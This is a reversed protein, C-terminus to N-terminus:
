LVDRDIFNERKEPHYLLELTPMPEAPKPLNVDKQVLFPNQKGAMNEQAESVLNQFAAVDSDEQDDEDVVEVDSAVHEFSDSHSDEEEDDLVDLNSITPEILGGEDNVDVSEIVQELQTPDVTPEEAVFIEVQEQPQKEERSQEDQALDDSQIADMELEEITATLQKSRAPSDEEQEEYHYLPTKVTDEPAKSVVEEKPMHINFRRAQTPEPSSEEPENSVFPLQEDEVEITDAIPEVVAPTMLKPEVIEEKQGRLRNLLWHFGLITVECLREVISLWSIGTLLTFGAGWLFLLVLTTGLVNLTPLALSTLVDGVVGGSSFYWIDDFNIDALGCSTLLLVVLGLLRTGWLMLDISEDDSRNRLVIWAGATLIIPLPYALSGFIFFLTDAVWAGVIGGSNQIDTGWATQSWSPDAPSFTFLAVALLISVLVALILGCEKLRQAGTLRPTALEESTKIITEVKNKNEKFM